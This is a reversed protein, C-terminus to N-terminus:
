SARQRWDGQLQDSCLSRLVGAVMGSLRRYDRNESVWAQGAKGMAQARKPDSLLELIASAFASPTLPVCLGGGSQEIVDAQDPQNNCVVPLGLSMYEITKTPSASDFLEGRPFPSLGIACTQAHALGEDYPLWGLFRVWQAARHAEAYRRLWGKEGETDAEGIVLLLFDPRVEGVLKAADIMLELEARRLPSLTGLYVASPRRFTAEAITAKPYEPLASVDVGMPVPLARTPSLSKGRLQELMVPSQVFLFDSLPVMIRYLACSGIQGRLWAYLRRRRHISRDRAITLYAEPMPFSMWYVFPIRALRAAFLGIIGLLPKDRVILGDYGRFCHWILSLQQAIDAIVFGISSGFRRCLLRGGGWPPLETTRPSLAVLDTEIGLEPLYKGFLVRVDARYTPHTEATAYLFRTRVGGERCAVANSKASLHM